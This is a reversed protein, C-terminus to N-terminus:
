KGTESKEETEEIPDPDAGGGRYGEPARSTEFESSACRKSKSNKTSLNNV